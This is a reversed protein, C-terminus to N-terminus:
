HFQINRIKHELTRYLIPILNSNEAIERLNAIEL